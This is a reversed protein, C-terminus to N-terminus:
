HLESLALRIAEEIDGIMKSSNTQEYFSNITVERQSKRFEFDIRLKELRELYGRANEALLEPNRESRLFADWPTGLMSVVPTGYAGVERCANGGIFPFTDCMVDIVQGYINLDVNGHHFRIRESNPSEAIFTNVAADDGTGAIFLYYSSDQTLIRDMLAFFTPTLKILRVFVGLIFTNEPFTRRTTAVENPDVIGKLTEQKQRWRLVSVRRILDPKGPWSPALRWDLSELSWFPFGTDVWLQLPAVRRTFLASAIARNQETIVVDIDDLTLSHAIEDIRDYCTDQPFPRVTVGSLAQNALFDSAVFQVLYLFIRRNTQHAHMEALSVILRSVANGRDFHATHLLYAINLKAEPNPISKTPNPPLRESLYSEFYPTISDFRRLDEVDSAGSFYLSHVADFSAMADSLSLTANKLM